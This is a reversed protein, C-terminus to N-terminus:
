YEKMYLFYNIDHSLYLKSNKNYYYDFYYLTVQGKIFEIPWKVRVYHSHKNQLEDLM